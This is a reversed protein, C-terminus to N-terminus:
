ECEIEDICEEIHMLFFDLRFDKCIDLEFKSILEEHVSLLYSVLEKKNNSRSKM